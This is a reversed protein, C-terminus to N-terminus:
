ANGVMVASDTFCVSAQVNRLKSGCEGMSYCRVQNYKVDSGRSSLVFSTLREIMPEVYKFFFM